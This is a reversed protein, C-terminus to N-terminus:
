RPAGVPITTGLEATPAQVPSHHFSSLRPDVAYPATDIGVEETPPGEAILKALAQEGDGDLEPLTARLADVVGLWPSGRKVLATRLLEIGVRHDNLLRWAEARDYCAGFELVAPLYDPLEAESGDAREELEVGSRRFAQKFEVLAVGRRRTDGHVFYTLHLACKRTVDFTDVYDRQLALLDGSELESLYAACAQRVGPPAETLAERIAPVRRVLEDTPYDLLLSVVQWSTALERDSWSPTSRRDRRWLRM